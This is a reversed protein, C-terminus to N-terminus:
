KLRATLRMGLVCGTLSPGPPTLAVIEGELRRGTYRPPGRPPAPMPQIKSCVELLIVRDGVEFLRVASWPHVLYSRLGAMLEAFDQMEVRLHHTQPGTLRAIMRAVGDVARIRASLRLGLPSIEVPVTIRSMLERHDEALHEVLDLM